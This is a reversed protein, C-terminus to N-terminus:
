DSNETLSCPWSAVLGTFKVHIGVGIGRVALPVFALRPLAAHSAFLLLQAAATSGVKYVLARTTM